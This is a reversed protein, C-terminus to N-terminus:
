RGELQYIASVILVVFFLALGGMVGFGGWDKKRWEEAAHQATVWAYGYAVAMLGMITIGLWRPTARLLALPAVGAVHREKWRLPDGHVRARRTLWSRQM